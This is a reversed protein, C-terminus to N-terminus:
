WTFKKIETSVGKYCRSIKLILSSSTLRNDGLLPRFWFLDNHTKYNM